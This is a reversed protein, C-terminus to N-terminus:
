IEDHGLSGLVIRSLTDLQTATERLQKDALYMHREATDLFDFAADYLDNFDVQSAEVLGDLRTKAVQLEVAWAPGELGQPLQQFPKEAITHVTASWELLLLIKQGVPRWLRDLARLNPKEQTADVREIERTFQAQTFLIDNLLNHLEKWEHLQSHFRKFSKLTEVLHDPMPDGEPLHQKLVEVLKQLDIQQYYQVIKDRGVVDGEQAHIDGQFYQGGQTNVPQSDSDTM